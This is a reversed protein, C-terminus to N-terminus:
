KIIYIYISLTQQESQSVFVQFTKKNKNIRCKSTQKNWQKPSYKINKNEMQKNIENKNKNKTKIKKNIYM